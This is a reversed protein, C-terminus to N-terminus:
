RESIKRAVDLACVGSQMELVAGDPLKINIM